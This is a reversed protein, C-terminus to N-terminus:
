LGGRSKDKAIVHIVNPMYLRTGWDIQGALPVNFTRKKRSISRKISLHYYSELRTLRTRFLLRSIREHLNEHHDQIPKIKLIVMATEYDQGTVIISFAWRIIMYVKTTNYPRLNQLQGFVVGPFSRCVGDMM